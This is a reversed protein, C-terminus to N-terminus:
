LCAAHYAQVLYPYSTLSHLTAPQYYSLRAVLEDELVPDFIMLRLM